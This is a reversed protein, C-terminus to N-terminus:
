HSTESRVGSVDIGGLEVIDGGFAAAASLAGTQLDALVGLARSSDSSVFSVLKGGLGQGAAEAVGAVVHLAAEELFAVVDLAEVTGVAVREVPNLCVVHVILPRGHRITLAAVLGRARLQAVAIADGKALLGEVIPVLGALVRRRVDEAALLGTM